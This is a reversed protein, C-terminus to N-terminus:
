GVGEKGAMRGAEQGISAKPEAEHASCSGGEVGQTHAALLELPLEKGNEAHSGREGHMLPSITQDLRPPPPPVPFAAGEM